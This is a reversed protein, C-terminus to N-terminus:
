VYREGGGGTELRENNQGKQTVARIPQATCKRKRGEMRTIQNAAVAHHVTSTDRPVLRVNDM